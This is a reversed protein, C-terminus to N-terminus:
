LRQIEQVHENKRLVSWELQLLEQPREMLAAKALNILHGSILRLSDNLEAAVKPDADIHEVRM